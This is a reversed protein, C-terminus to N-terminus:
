WRLSKRHLALSVYLHQQKDFVEFVEFSLMSRRCLEVVSENTLTKFKYQKQADNKKNKITWVSSLHLLLLFCPLLVDSDSSLFLLTFVCNPCNGVLHISVFHQETKGILVQDLKSYFHPSLPTKNSVPCAFSFTEPKKKATM